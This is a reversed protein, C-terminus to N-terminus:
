CHGQAITFAVELHSIETTRYFRLLRTSHIKQSSVFAHVCTTDTTLLGVLVLGSSLAM